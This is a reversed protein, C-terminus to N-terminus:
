GGYSGHPDITVRSPRAEFPIRKRKRRNKERREGRGGRGGGGREGAGGVAGVKKKEIEKGKKRKKQLERRSMIPVFFPPLFIVRTRENIGKM